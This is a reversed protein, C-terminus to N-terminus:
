NRQKLSLGSQAAALSEQRSNSVSADDNSLKVTYMSLVPACGRGGGREEQYYHHHYYDYNHYHYYHHYYYYYYYYYVVRTYM